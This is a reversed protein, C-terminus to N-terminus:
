LFPIDSRDLLDTESVVVVTVIGIVIAGTIMYFLVGTWIGIIAAVTIIGIWFAQTVTTVSEVIREVRRPKWLYLVLPVLVAAVLVLLASM